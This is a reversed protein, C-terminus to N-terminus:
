KETTPTSGISPRENRVRREFREIVKPPIGEFLNAPLEFSKLIELKAIEKGMNDVGAQAPERKLRDLGSQSDGSAIAVLQDLKSLTNVPLRAHITQYVQEHFGRLAASVLRELEKESPLEIRHTLLRGLALEFLEEYTQCKTTADDRLWVELGEKDRATPFRYGTEERIISLHYNKTSRSWSYENASGKLVDLQKAVFALVQHPVENLEPFYGLYLLSKLLISVVLRNADSRCEQVFLHESRSLFFHEALEEDTYIDRFRPYDGKM